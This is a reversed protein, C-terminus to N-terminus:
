GAAAMIQVVEMPTPLCAPVADGAGAASEAQGYVIGLLTELNALGQTDLQTTDIEIHATPKLDYEVASSGSGITIKGMQQTVTSVEWSLSAPEPSDNITEYNHESPDATCGWIFHYKFGHDNGDVDSGINSRHCFAFLKRAQQGVKVGAVPKVTGDCEDFEAPSYLAEITFKYDEASRLTLYKINDAYTDNAEAGEPNHNVATLGNWAVGNVYHYTKASAGEGITVGTKDYLYLVGHDVGTEYLREGTKDWEIAIAM